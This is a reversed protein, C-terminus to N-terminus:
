KGIRKGCIQCHVNCDADVCVVYTSGTDCSPCPKQEPEEPMGYPEDSWEGVLKGIDYYEVFLGNGDIGRKVEYICPPLDPHRRYAWWGVKDPKKTTWKM